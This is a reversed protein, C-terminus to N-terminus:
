LSIPGIDSFDGLFELETRSWEQDGEADHGKLAALQGLRGREGQGKGM